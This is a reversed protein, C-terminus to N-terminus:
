GGPATQRTSLVLFVGSMLFLAVTPPEPVVEFTHTGGTIDETYARWLEDEHPAPAYATLVGAGMQDDPDDANSADLIYEGATGPLGLDISGIHLVEGALMQILAGPCICDLSMFTWPVPIDPYATALYGNIDDPISSYDFEFTPGLMLAPDSDTFDLQVRRLGVDYDVQSHLWVDVTLSEGGYYPGPNDPTLEVEVMGANALSAFAVALTAIATRTLM